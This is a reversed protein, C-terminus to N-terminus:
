DGPSLKELLHQVAAELVEDRGQRIGELTAAAQVHPQLGRRQLTTGDPRSLSEVTLFARIGGPLSISAIEGVAGNSASGVYTVRGVAELFLCAQEAQSITEENILVVLRGSYPTGRPRATRLVTEAIRRVDPDPSMPELRRLLGAAAQRRGMLGTLPWVGGRPFGRMDFVIAPTERVAQYALPAEGASLRDLDVYGFGEELVEYDPRTRALRRRGMSRPLTLEQLSGDDKAVKLRAISAEPGGLLNSFAKLRAAQPTSAPLYPLLKEVRQEVPIGDVEVIVDGVELDGTEEPKLIEFVAAQGQVGKIVFGPVAPGFFETLVPSSLFSLSDQTRAALQAAALHYEIADSADGFRVIFEGLLSDWSEDLLGKYPSFYHFANWYRFLGLLRQQLSPYLEDEPSAAGPRSAILAQRDSEQLVRRQPTQSVVQRAIRSLAELDRAELAGIILDPQFGVSGDAHLWQNLRISASLGHPLDLTYGSGGQLGLRRASGQYVIRARGVARLGGLVPIVGSPTGENVFFVLTGKREPQGDGLPVQGPDEAPRSSPQIRQPQAQVFGSYFSSSAQGEAMFGSHRRRRATTLVFPEDVLLPAVSALHTGLRWGGGLDPGQRRLDVVVLQSEIARVLEAELLEGGSASSMRGYATSRVVATGDELVSLYPQRLADEPAEGFGDERSEGGSVRTDADALHDLMKQLAARYEEKTAAGEVQPVTELLAQDWDLGAQATKPHFLWVAGWLRALGEMREVRGSEWRESTEEADEQGLAPTTQSLLVLTLLAGIRSKIWYGSEWM